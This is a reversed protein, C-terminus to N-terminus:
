CDSAAVQEAVNIPLSTIRRAVFYGVIVPIWGFLVWTAFVNPYDGQSVLDEEKLPKGHHSRAWEIDHFMHSMGAFVLVTILCIIAAVCYLLGRISSSPKCRRVMYGLVLFVLFPSVVALTLMLYEAIQIM